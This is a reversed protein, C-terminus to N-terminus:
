SPLQDPAPYVAVNTFSAKVGNSTNGNQVFVAVQGDTYDSDTVTNVVTKNILLVLTTGKMIMSVTNQQGVPNITSSSTIDVLSKVRVTKNTDVYEKSIAYTGDGFIDVRYDHDLNSDGRVYLGLSDTKDAQQITFTATFILDSFTSTTPFTEILIKHNAEALTLANNGVSRTFGPGSTTDWNKSNDAFNDSFLPQVTPQQTPQPSPTTDNTPTVTNTVNTANNAVSRGIVYVGTGCAVVLVLLVLGIILGVNARKKQPEPAQPFGGMQGPAVGPPPAYTDYPPPPTMGSPPPPAYSQQNPTSYPTSGYPPTGYPSGVSSPGAYQTPEIQLQSPNSVGPYQSPSSSSPGTYQTPEIVAPEAYRTGCNGCFMEGSALPTGCQKCIRSPTSM